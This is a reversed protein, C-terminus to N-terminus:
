SNTIGKILVSLPSKELAAKGIKAWYVIQGSITRGENISVKRALSYFDKSIRISRTNESSDTKMYKITRKLQLYTLLQWLLIM